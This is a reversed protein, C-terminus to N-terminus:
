GRFGHEWGKTDAMLYQNWSIIGAKGDEGMRGHGAKFGILRALLLKGRIRPQRQLVLAALNGPPNNLKVHGFGRM